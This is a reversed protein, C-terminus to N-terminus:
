TCSSFRHLTFLNKKKLTDWADRPSCPTRKPFLCFIALELQFPMYALHHGFPAIIVATAQRMGTGQGYYSVDRLAPYEEFVPCSTAEGLYRTFPRDCLAFPATL